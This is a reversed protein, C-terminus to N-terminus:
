ISPMMGPMAAQPQQIAPVWGSTLFKELEARNLYYKQTDKGNYRRLGADGKLYTRDNKGPKLRIYAGHPTLTGKVIEWASLKHFLTGNKDLKIGFNASVWPEKSFVNVIEDWTLGQENELASFYDEKDNKPSGQASDRTKEPTPDMDELFQRFGNLFKM